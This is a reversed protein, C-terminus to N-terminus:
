RATNQLYFRLGARTSPFALQDVPIEAREFLHIGAVDDQPQIAQWHDVTCVFFLDLTQYYIEKYPYINAASTLYRYGAVEVSLEERIERVLAAEATEQPDIFGGPLDLLGACPDFARRTLLIKSDCEIIAAVAAAMNQFYTFGCADCVLSKGDRRRLNEAKCAPCYRFKELLVM